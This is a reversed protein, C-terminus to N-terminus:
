KQLFTLKGIDPQVNMGAHHILIEENTRSIFTLTRDDAPSVFFITSNIQGGSAVRYISIASTGCFSCIIPENEDYPLYTRPPKTSRTVQNKKFDKSTSPQMQDKKTDLNHGWEQHSPSFRLRAERQEGRWVKKIVQDEILPAKGKGEYVQVDQHQSREAVKADDIRISPPKEKKEVISDKRQNDISQHWSPNLTQDNKSRRSLQQKKRQISLDRDGVIRLNRSSVNEIAQEQSTDPNIMREIREMMEQLRSNRRPLRARRPAPAMLRLVQEVRAELGIVMKAIEKQEVRINFLEDNVSDLRYNTARQTYATSSQEEKNKRELKQRFEKESDGEEVGDDINDELASTFEDESDVDYASIARCAETSVERWFDEAEKYIEKEIEEFEDRRTEPAKKGRRLLAAKTAIERLTQNGDDNDEETHNVM